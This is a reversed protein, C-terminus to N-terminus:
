DKWLYPFLLYSLTIVIVNLFGLTLLLNESVTWSLGDVANKSLKIIVILLPLIVPFGLIAMLSFNNSTKSAIAAILTLTSAIGTSGLLLVLCFLSIDNILNGLFLSYFFLGLFSVFVSLLSNYIIKSIIIKQPSVLSYIYLFGSKSENMFSKSIANVNSFLLIIWFLANWTAPHIVSKFSLYAIFVASVIYLLIGNIAYKQRLEIKVEKALLRRIM